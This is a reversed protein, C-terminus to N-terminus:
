AMVRNNIYMHIKNISEFNEPIIERDYIKFNFTEEIFAVLSILGTSDIYGKDILSEDGNIEDMSENYLIFNQFFIQLKGMIDESNM